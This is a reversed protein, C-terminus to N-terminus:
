LISTHHGTLFSPSEFETVRRRLMKYNADTTAESRAGNEIVAQQVERVLEFVAKITPRTTKDEDPFDQTIEDSAM